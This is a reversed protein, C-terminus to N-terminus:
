GRLWAHYKQIWKLLGTPAHAKKWEGGAYKNAELMAPCIHITGLYTKTKETM